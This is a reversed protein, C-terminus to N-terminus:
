LLDAFMLCIVDEGLWQKFQEEDDFFIHAKIMTTKPSKLHKFFGKKGSMHTWKSGNFYLWSVYGGFESSNEYVHDNDWKYVIFSRKANMLIDSSSLDIHQDHILCLAINYKVNKM